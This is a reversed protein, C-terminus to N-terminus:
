GADRGDWGDSKYDIGGAYVSGHCYQVCKGTQIEKKGQVRSWYDGASLVGGKIVGTANIVM